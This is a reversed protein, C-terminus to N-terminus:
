SGGEREGFFVSRVLDGREVLDAVAGSFRIEGKEMFYGKEALTLAVNLSQEVVLLTIGRKLAEELMGVIEQMVVPALGLSLEDIMLLEPGSILARGLAMMQQEGGSLTGAAQNLRGRLQPFLDLAEEIRTEVKARDGLFQYAGIRLNELLTLSPFTAKGGPMQVMGLAVRKEPPMKTVDIGKFVVSGMTPEVLGSIVKLLTSKGAGNTGLLAVRAGRPVQLSVGFLVQLPGYSSDVERVDLLLEEPAAGNQTMGPQESSM